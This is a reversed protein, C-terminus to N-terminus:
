VNLELSRLLKRLKFPNFCVSGLSVHNAGAALYDSVAGFDRVGGGAIIEVRNGWRERVIDILKMTLPKLTVGSLGGGNIPLTNSFHLQTFGLEEIVFEIEEPSSLPSLKAICWKRSKVKTFLRADDMPLTSSGNINNLCEINPCSLNIELSQDLPIIHNMRQFDGRKTEAISMVNNQPNESVSCLGKQLGPNPLGLKNVWGNHKRSYRLTTLVSWFRNGRPHLTFTGKVSITSKSRIYNGFPASIFFTPSNM